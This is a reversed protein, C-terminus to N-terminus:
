QQGEKQSQQYLKEMLDGDEVLSQKWNLFADRIKQLTQANSDTLQLGDAWIYCGDGSPDNYRFQFSISLGNVEGNLVLDKIDPYYKLADNGFSVNGVTKRITEEQSTLVNGFQVDNKKLTFSNGHPNSEENLKKKGKNEAEEMLIEARRLFNDKEPIVDERLNKPNRTGQAKRITSLLKRTYDEM